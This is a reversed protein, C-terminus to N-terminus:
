IIEVSDDLDSTGGTLPLNEEDDDEGFLTEADECMNLFHLAAQLTVLSYGERGRLLQEDRAFEELFTIEANLRDVKAILIHQCVMKLLSDACLSENSGSSASFHESISELFHVCDELKNVASHATPLRRLARLAKESINGSVLDRIKPDQECREIKLLLAVDKDSTEEVIEQIVEDYVKGFVLTEVATAALETITPSADFGPRADLLTATVFKIIAHTDDRRTRGSFESDAYGEEHIGKQNEIREFFRVILSRYIHGPLSDKDNLIRSVLLFVKDTTPIEEETPRIIDEDRCHRDRSSFPTGSFLGGGVTRPAKAVAEACILEWSADIKINPRVLLVKRSAGREGMELIRREELHEHIHKGAASGTAVSAVFVGISVSGELLIGLAGATRGLGCGAIAGAPGAIALGAVGGAIGGAVAAAGLRSPISVTTRVANVTGSVFQTVPNHQEKVVKANTAVDMKQELLPEKLAPDIVKDDDSITGEKQNRFHALINEQLARSVSAFPHSAYHLPVEVNVADEEEEEEEEVAKDLLTPPINDDHDIPTVPPKALAAWHEPPGDTTWELTSEESATITTSAISQNENGTTALLAKSVNRNRQSKMQGIKVRNVPCMKKDDDWLSKALQANMACRRHAYVGCALCRVVASDNGSGFVVRQMKAQCGECNKLALLFNVQQFSHLHQPHACIGGEATINEDVGGEALTTTTTTTTTTGEMAEITLELDSKNEESLVPPKTVSLSLTNKNNNGELSM